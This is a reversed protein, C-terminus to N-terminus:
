SSPSHWLVRYFRVCKKVTCNQYFLNLVFNYRRVCLRYITQLRYLLDRCFLTTPHMRMLFAKVTQLKCVFAPTSLRLGVDWCCYCTGYFRAPVKYLVAQKKFQFIHMFIKSLAGILKSSREQATRLVHTYNLGFNTKSTLFLFSILGSVYNDFWVSDNVFIRQM